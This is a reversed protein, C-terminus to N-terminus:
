RTLHSPSAGDPRNAACRRGRPATGSHGRDVGVGRGVSRQAGTRTGLSARADLDVAHEEVRQLLPSVAARHDHHQLHQAVDLVERGTLTRRESDLRVDISYNANRPSPSGIVSGTPELSPQAAVLPLGLRDAALAQIAM